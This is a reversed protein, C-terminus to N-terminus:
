EQVDSTSDQQDKRVLLKDIRQRDMDVIEFTFNHWNIKQGVIPLRRMQELILGALTVYNSQQYLECNDFYNLFDYVPMSADVLYSGDEREVISPASDLEDTSGVLGDLVDNLTILGQMVGFEDCVLVSHVHLTKLRELADYVSMSEPVFTAPRVLSALSFDPSDIRFILDKLSIMGVIDDHESSVVPYSDHLEDTLNQKIEAITMDISLVVVDKRPTMISSVRQDGLMLTRNMIDKEVPQVEGSAAGSDIVQRVDGETTLNQDEKLRFLRIICGTSVSLFWVMPLCMKSLLLMPRAVIKAITDASNLALRKPVLEGVVISLYTVVVIISIQAIENSYTLPIGWKVLVESLIGAFKAGSYLGTLIGILTIGIQITSLFNDPNDIIKLAITASRSGKKSEQALRTKRASILATESMSFLGNILILAIIIILDSM